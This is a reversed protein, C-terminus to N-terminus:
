PHEWDGAGWFALAIGDLHYEAGGFNDGHVMNYWERIYAVPM